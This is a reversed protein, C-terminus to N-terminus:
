FLGLVVRIKLRVYTNIANGLGFVSYLIYILGFECIWIRKSEKRKAEVGVVGGLSFIYLLWFKSLFFNQSSFIM